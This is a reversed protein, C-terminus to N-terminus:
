YPPTGSEVRSTYSCITATLLVSALYLDHLHTLRDCTLFKRDNVIVALWLSNDYVDLSKILQHLGQRVQLLQGIIGLFDFPNGFNHILRACAPLRM